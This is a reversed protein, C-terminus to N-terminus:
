EELLRGEGLFRRYNKFRQTVRVSQAGARSLTMTQISEPLMIVELPDDFTVPKYRISTTHRDIALATTRWRKQEERPIGIDIPGYINQDLRLVEGTVDDLWVRGQLRSEVSWSVCSSDDAGTRFNAEPTARGRRNRHMFDLSVTPRGDMRGTGAWKFELDSREDPLFMALPESWTEHPQMCRPKDKPNPPRGNVTLLERVMTATPIQHAEAPAWELRLQYGYRISPGDFSMDTRIPQQTIEEHSVLSQARGYYRMVYDVIRDLILQPDRNGQARVSASGVLLATAAVIGTVVRMRM